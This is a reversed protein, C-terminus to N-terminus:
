YIFEHIFYGFQMVAFFFKKEKSCFNTCDVSAFNTFGKAFRESYQVHM